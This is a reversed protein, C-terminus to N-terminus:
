KRDIGTDGTAVAQVAFLTRVQDDEALLGDSNAVLFRRRGEQYRATVQKISDGQGRAADEAKRLLEVKTAKAISEPATEVEYLPTVQQRSLAIERAGGGGGKAAAAAAEAAARLSTESLDATHAFGTTDGTVVRIGAGRTRNSSLEDVKGDDFRAASSRRDEVFVEAFDGGTRLAAGLVRSVVGEDLM